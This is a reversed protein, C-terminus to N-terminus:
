QDVLALIKADNNSFVVKFKGSAIMAEESQDWLNAPFGLMLEAFAKQSRTLILYSNPYKKNSMQTVIGDVDGRRIKRTVLVYRYKEFDQFKWPLNEAGALLLSGPEAITYLHEVAELENATFYDMRENGYRTFLFGALLLVSALGVIGTMRWTTGTVPSTYFFAAAFFVMAPLAFLYSRLLMEGGYPQLLVLIFPAAGILAYTFDWYGHRLRRLAGVVGLVAIAGTMIVRMRVIFIHDASGRLRDVVNESVNESIAGVGGVIQKAHGSFYSSAMFSLWIGIIVAMLIPLGRPSVRNFLVLLSVTIFGAIPTIQHSPVAALFVVIIIAMLGVRQWSRVPIPILATPRPLAPAKRPLWKQPVLRSWRQVLTHLDGGPKNFWTVLVAVIVLYLFYNLAQQSFYDQGIWNTLYFFWLGLWVVRKDESAARLLMVLPGLYILNFFVSAWPLFPVANEFGAIQALFGTLVFFGPWNFYANINPNVTGTRTIYETIGVHRWSVHFRPVEQVITTTGYLMVIMVIVQPLLLGTRLRPQHLALCFSVIMLFLALLVPFPLVSVLGLDNMRGVDIDKLSTLWLFIASITLVPPLAARFRDATISKSPQAGVSSFVRSRM